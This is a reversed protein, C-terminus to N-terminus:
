LGASTICRFVASVDCPHHVQVGKLTHVSDTNQKYTEGYESKGHTAQLQSRLPDSDGTHELSSACGPLRLQAGADMRTHRSKDPKLQEQQTHTCTLTHTLLTECTFPTVGTRKSVSTKRPTNATLTVSGAAGVGVGAGGAGALHVCVQRAWTPVATDTVQPEDPSRNSRLHVHHPGVTVQTFRSEVVELLVVREAAGVTEAEAHGVDTLTRGPGGGLHSHDM